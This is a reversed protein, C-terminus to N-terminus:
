RASHFTILFINPRPAAQALTTCLAVSLALLIRRWMATINYASVQSVHEWRQQWGRNGARISTERALGCRSGAAVVQERRSRPLQTIGNPLPLASCNRCPLANQSYRSSRPTGTVTNRMGDFKGGIGLRPRVIAPM